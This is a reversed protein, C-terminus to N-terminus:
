RQEEARLLNQCPAYATLGRLSDWDNCEPNRRIRSSSGDGEARDLWSPTLPRWAVVRLICQVASRRHVWMQRTRSQHPIRPSTLTTSGCRTGFPDTVSTWCPRLKGATGNRRASRGFSCPSRQKKRKALASGEGVLVYNRTRPSSEELTEDPGSARNQPETM